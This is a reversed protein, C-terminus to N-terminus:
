AFTPPGRLPIKQRLFLNKHFQPEEFSTIAQIQTWSFSNKQLIRSALVFPFAAKITQQRLDTQKETSLLFQKVQLDAEVNHNHHALLFGLWSHEHEDETTHCHPTSNHLLIFSFMLSILSLYIYNYPKRM